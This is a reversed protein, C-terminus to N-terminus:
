TVGYGRWLLWGAGLMGAGALAFLAPPAWFPLFRDIEAADPDGPLYRVPVPEGLTASTLSSGFWSRFRFPRGTSRDVVEVIPSVPRSGPKARLLSSPTGVHADVVTGVAREGRTLLRVRQVTVLVAVLWGLSGAGFTVALAVYRGM